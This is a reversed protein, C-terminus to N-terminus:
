CEREVGIEALYKQRLKYEEDILDKKEQQPACKWMSALARSIDTNNMKPNKRNVEARKAHSYLFFASMPRKPSNPGKQQSSRKAAALVKWPGTYTSKKM